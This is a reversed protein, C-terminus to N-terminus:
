TVERASTRADRFVRSEDPVGATSLADAPWFRLAGSFYTYESRSSFNKIINRCIWWWRVFALLFAWTMAALFSSHVRRDHTWTWPLLLTWHELLHNWPQEPPVLAQRRRPPVHRVAASLSSSSPFALRRLHETGITESRQRREKKLRGEVDLWDDGLIEGPLSRAAAISFPLELVQRGVGGLLECIFNYREGALMCTYTCAAWPIIQSNLLHLGDDVHDVTRVYVLYAGLVHPSTQYTDM